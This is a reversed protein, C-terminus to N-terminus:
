HISRCVESRRTPPELGGPQVLSIEPIMADRCRSTSRRQRTAAQSRLALLRDIRTQQRRPRGVLAPSPGVGHDCSGCPGACWSLVASRGRVSRRGSGRSRTRGVCSGTRSTSSGTRGACSGMRGTCSGTRRARSPTRGTSSRTGRGCSGAGSACSGTRCGCSGPNGTCVGAGCGCLGARGTCSRTHGVCSGARGGSLGSNGTWSRRRGTYPGAYCGRSGAHSRCVASYERCSLLHAM